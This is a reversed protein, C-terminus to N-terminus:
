IIPFRGISAWNFNSGPDVKIDERLGMVVARKGAINEHGTYSKIPFRLEIDSCLEKLSHYQSDTFGSKDTALLEIGISFENVGERNDPEPMISKGCHWAKKEEPVLQWVGGERDIIYHSSVDYDVLIQLCEELSYPERGKVEIASMYHIVITDVLAKREEWIHKKGKDKLQSSLKGGPLLIDNDINLLCKQINM